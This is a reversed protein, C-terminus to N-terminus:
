KKPGKPKPVPPPRLRKTPVDDPTPGLEVLQGTKPDIRFRNTNLEPDDDLEDPIKEDEVPKALMSPHLSELAAAQRNMAATHDDAAKKYGELWGVRQALASRAKECKAVRVHLWTVVASLIATLALAVASMGTPADLTVDLLIALIM